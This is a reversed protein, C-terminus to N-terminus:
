VVGVIRKGHQLDFARFKLPECPLAEGVPCLPTDAEGHKLKLFSQKIQSLPGGERNESLCYLPKQHQGQELEAKELSRVSLDQSSAPGAQIVGFLAEERLIM